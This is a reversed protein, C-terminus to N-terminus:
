QSVEATIKLRSLYPGYFCSNGQVGGSSARRRRKGKTHSAIPSCERCEAASILRFDDTTLSHLCAM